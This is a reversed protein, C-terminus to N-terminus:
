GGVLRDAVQVANESSHAQATAGIVEFLDPVLQFPPGGVLIPLETHSRVFEVAAWMSEIQLPTTASLAILDPAFDQVALVLDPAPLNGGFYLPDWGAWAFQHSVIRLGLEHLEGATAALLVRRGNPEARPAAEFLAGLTREAIRSGFHEEGVHIENMQWMRGLEFQAPRIVDRCLDRPSTGATCADLVLRVADDSRGELVALLYRRALDALPGDGGVCSEIESPALAAEDAALRLFEAPREGSRDPLEAEVVDALTQLGVILVNPDLGRACMAVKLWCVQDLLLEVRDTAVAVALYKVRLETDNQLDFESGFAVSAEPELTMLREVAQTALIRASANLIASPYRSNDTM